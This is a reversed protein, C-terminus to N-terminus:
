EFIRLPQNSQSIRVAKNHRLILDDEIRVGFKGSLYIGPEITFVMGPKLEADNRPNISPEEHVALGIGHGLGHGFFRGFGQAHIYDRAIKDIDKARVGPKIAEIAKNQADSVIQYIERAKKTPEGASITVTLDSYYGLYNVGFDIVVLEGKRIIKQTAKGHPLAGRPGSAIITDFAFGGAGTKRAQFELEAALDLETIGPRFNRLAKELAYEALKVAKTIKEIEDQDKIARIESLSKKLPVLNIRKLETKLTRYYQFSMGTPEIGLRKIRNKSFIKALEKIKNKFIKIRFGSIEKYVQEQYRFDTFFWKKEPTFIITGESGRFGSLYSVNTLDTILIADLHNEQALQALFKIARERLIKRTM